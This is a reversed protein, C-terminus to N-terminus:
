PQLGRRAREYSWWLAMYAVRAIQEASAPSDACPNLAAVLEKTEEQELDCLEAIRGWWYWENM